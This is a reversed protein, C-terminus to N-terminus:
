IVCFCEDKKQHKVFPCFIHFLILTHCEVSYFTVATTLIHWVCLIFRLFFHNSLCKLPNEHPKFHIEWYTRAMWQIGANLLFLECPLCKTEIMNRLISIVNRMYWLLLLLICPIHCIYYSRSWREQPNKPSKEKLSYNWMSISWIEMAYEITFAVSYKIWM